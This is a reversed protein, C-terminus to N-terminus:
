KVVEVIPFEKEQKERNKIYLNRNFEFQKYFQEIVGVTFDSRKCFRRYQNFVPKTTHDEIYPINKILNSLCHASEKILRNGIDHPTDEFLIKARKQYIIKGTDVGENMYMFTTGVCAFMNDYMAWFNTGSGRYYPSLGLHMNIIKNQFFTFWFDKLISSGYCVVYDPNLNQLSQKIQNSNIQGKPIYYIPYYVNPVFVFYQQESMKRDEIHKRMVNENDYTFDTRKELSQEIGEIIAMIIEIDPDCALVNQVYQHRLENGSIFVIKKKM